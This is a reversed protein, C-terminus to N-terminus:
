SIRYVGDADVKDGFMAKSNLVVSGLGLMTDHLMQRQAQEWDPVEFKCATEERSM